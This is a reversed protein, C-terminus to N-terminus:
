KRNWFSYIQNFSLSFFRYRGGEREWMQAHAGSTQVETNQTNTHPTLCIGSLTLGASISPEPRSAAETEESSEGRDEPGYKHTKAAVSPWNLLRLGTSLLASWRRTQDTNTTGSPRKRESRWLLLMSERRTSLCNKSEQVSKTLISTFIGKERFSQGDNSLNNDIFQLLKQSSLGFLTELIRKGTYTVPLMSVDSFRHHKNKVMVCTVERERERQRVAESVCM